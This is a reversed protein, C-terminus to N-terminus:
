SGIRAATSAHMSARRFRVAEGIVLELARDLRARSGPRPGRSVADQSAFKGPGSSLSRAVPPAASRSACRSVPRSCCCVRVWSGASTSAPSRCNRNRRRVSAPKRPTTTVPTTATPEPASKPTTAEKSPATGSKPEPETKTTVPPKAGYGSTTNTTANTTETQALAPAPIAVALALPVALLARRAVRRSFTSGRDDYLESGLKAAGATQPGSSVMSDTRTM